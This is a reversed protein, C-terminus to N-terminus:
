EEAKKTLSWTGNKNDTWILIDDMNWGLETMIEELLPLVLDNGDEILEVTYTKM